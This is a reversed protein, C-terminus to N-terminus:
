LATSYSSLFFSSSFFIDFIILSTDNRLTEAQARTRSYTHTNVKRRLRTNYMRYISRSVTVGSVRHHRAPAESADCLLACYKRKDHPSWSRM